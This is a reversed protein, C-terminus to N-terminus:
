YFLLATALQPVVLMIIRERAAHAHETASHTAPHPHPQRSDTTLLCSTTRWRKLPPGSPSPFSPGSSSRRCGDVTLGCEAALFAAATHTHTHTDIYLCNNLRNPGAHRANGQHGSVSNFSCCKLTGLQAGRWSQYSTSGQGECGAHCVVCSCVVCFCWVDDCSVDLYEFGVCWMFCYSQM